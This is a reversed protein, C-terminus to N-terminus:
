LEKLVELAVKYKEMAEATMFKEAARVRLRLEVLEKIYQTHHALTMIVLHDGISKEGQGNMRMVAWGPGFDSAMAREKLQKIAELPNFGARAKVEIDVPVHTIDQGKRGSGQTDAEPWIHDAYWKAIYAQTEMGRDKRSRNSM